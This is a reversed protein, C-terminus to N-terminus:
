VFHLLYWQPVFYKVMDGHKSRTARGAFLWACSGVLGVLIYLEGEIPRLVSLNHINTENQVNRQALYDPTGFAFLRQGWSIEEMAVFLFGLGLILYSLGLFLRRTKLFGVSISIAFVCAVFYAICTLNEIIADERIISRYLDRRDIKLWLMAAVLMIPAVCVSVRLVLGGQKAKNTNAM